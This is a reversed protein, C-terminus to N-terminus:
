QGYDSNPLRTFHKDELGKAEDGDYWTVTGAYFLWHM